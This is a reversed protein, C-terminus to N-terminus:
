PQVGQNGLNALAVLADADEIPALNVQVYGKWIQNRRHSWMSYWYTGREVLRKSVMGLHVAYADVHYNAKLALQSARSNPFIDPTQVQLDQQTKGVPLKYFTVVDIDNPSRSELLEVHELFSGDLWQFGQVLGATHLAARYRLFGNLVIRREASLGFRLVVDTLSVTYPSRDVATPQQNNIPPIVGQANWDPIAVTTM